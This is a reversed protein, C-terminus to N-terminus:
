KGGGSSEPTDVANDRPFSFLAGAFCSLGLRMVLKSLFSISFRRLEFGLLLTLLAQLTAFRM